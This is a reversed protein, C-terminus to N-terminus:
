DRVMWPVLSLRETAFAAACGGLTVIYGVGGIQLLTQRGLNDILRLGLLTAVLNAIGIGVSSLLAASRALGAWEFIRPAFYLVANIGSLQNFFACLTALMIPQKLEKRFFPPPSQGLPVAEAAMAAEVAEGLAVIAEESFEPNVERFVALGAASQGQGILWRPSEPITQM